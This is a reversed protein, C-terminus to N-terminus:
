LVTIGFGHATSCWLGILLLGHGENMLVRTENFPHTDALINTQSFTKRHTTFNSIPPGRVTARRDHWEFAM